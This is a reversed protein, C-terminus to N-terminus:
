GLNWYEILRRELDAACDRTYMCDCDREAYRELIYYFRSDCIKRVMPESLETMVDAYEKSDRAIDFTDNVYKILHESVLAYVVTKYRDLFFLREQYSM